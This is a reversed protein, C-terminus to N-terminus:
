GLSKKTAADSFDGRRCPFVNMGRRARWSRRCVRCIRTHLYGGLGDPETM